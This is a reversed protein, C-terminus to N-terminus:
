CLSKWITAVEETEAMGGHGATTATATATGAVLITWLAVLALAMAPHPLATALEEETVSM